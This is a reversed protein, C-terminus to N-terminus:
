IRRLPGIVPWAACSHVACVATFNVSDPLNRASLSGDAENTRVDKPGDGGSRPRNVAASTYGSHRSLAAAYRLRLADVCSGPFRDSIALSLGAPPPNGDSAHACGRNRRVSKKGLRANAGPQRSRM